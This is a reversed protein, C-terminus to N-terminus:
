EDVEIEVESNPWRWMQVGSQGFTFFVAEKRELTDSWIDIAKDRWVKGVPLGVNGNWIRDGPALDQALKKAVAM